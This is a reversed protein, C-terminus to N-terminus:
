SILSILPTAITKIKIKDRIPLTPYSDFSCVEKTKRRFEHTSIVRKKKKDRYYGVCSLIKGRQWERLTNLEQNCLGYRTFLRTISSVVLKEYDVYNADYRVTASQTNPIYHYLQKDICVIYEAKELYDCCFLADEGLKVKENFRIGNNRIIDLKFMKNAVYNTYQIYNFYSPKSFFLRRDYVGDIVPQHVNAMACIAIDCKNDKLKYYLMEIMDPEIYDDSDVFVIYDGSAKKIALNRRYSVGKNVRSVDFVVRDDKGNYDAVIKSIDFKSGDTMVLIELNGYTQNLCSDICKRLLFPSSNYYPIAITIKDSTNSKMYFYRM